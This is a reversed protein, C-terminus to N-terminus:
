VDLATKGNIEVFQVCDFNGCVSFSGMNTGAVAPLIDIGCKVGLLKGDDTASVAINSNSAQGQSTLQLGSDSGLKKVVSVHVPPM